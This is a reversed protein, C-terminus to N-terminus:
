QQSSESTTRSRTAEVKAEDRPKGTGFISANRPAEATENLPKDVTRPLLKLRPRRSASEPSPERFEPAGGSGGSDRRPRRDYGGRGGYGGRDGGRDYGRDGGRFGGRGGRGGRDGGRGRGGRDNKRGEAIDVRLNKDEFLAGDYTLAERLSDTDDFEVYAFGKFRDTEKDRVLRVSKVKGQERYASSFCADLLNLLPIILYPAYFGLLTLRESLNRPAPYPSASFDYTLTHYFITILTTAVHTSYIIVPIRIWKAKAAGKFYAYIGVFFFPFQIFVECLCFSCFWPPPDVMMPDRFERCYWNKLNVLQEPYYKQPFVAQSDVFLAIPVHTLYYLFFVVDLFRQM